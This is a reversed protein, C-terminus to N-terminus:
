KKLPCEGPPFPCHGGCAASSHSEMVKAGARAVAPVSLAVALLAGLIRKM